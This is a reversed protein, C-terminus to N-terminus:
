HQELSGGCIQFDARMSRATWRRSKWCKIAQREIAGTEDAAIHGTDPAIVGQHPRLISSIITLNAQTGGMVFHVDVDEGCLSRILAKASATHHDKGYGPLQEENTEMLRQLVKPHAGETYDNDFRIM